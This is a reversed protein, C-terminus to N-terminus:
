MFSLSGNVSSYHMQPNLNTKIQSLKMNIRKGRDMVMKM